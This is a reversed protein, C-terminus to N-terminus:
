SLTYYQDIKKITTYFPLHDKNQNLQDIIVLSGTFFIFNELKNENAPDNFQVTAYKETKYKSNGIKFLKILIEKNLILNISRKQGDFVKLNCNFDSFKPHDTTVM